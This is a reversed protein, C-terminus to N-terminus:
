FCFLLLLFSFNSSKQNLSINIIKKKAEKNVSHIKKEKFLCIYLSTTVAFPNKFKHARFFLSKKWWCVYVALCAFSILRVMLISMRSVPMIGCVICYIHLVYMTDIANCRKANTYNKM